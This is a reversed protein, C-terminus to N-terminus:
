LPQYHHIMPECHNMMSDCVPFSYPRGL